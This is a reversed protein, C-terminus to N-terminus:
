KLNPPNEKGNKADKNKLKELIWYAVQRNNAYAEIPNHKFVERGLNKREYVYLAMVERYKGPHRLRTGPILRDMSGFWKKMKAEYEPLNDNIFRALDALPISWHRKGREPYPQEVFERLTAETINKMAASHSDFSWGGYNWIAAFRYCHCDGGPDHDFVVSTIDTQIKIENHM